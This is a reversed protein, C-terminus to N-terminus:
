LKDLLSLFLASSWIDLSPQENEPVFRRVDEIAEKWDISNIKAALEKKVWDTNVTIEQGSWPGQQNIASTLFGYNIAVQNRIYWIFDYWDRGKTYTRCLLAHMKGAFLSPLDLTVLEAAYPFDLYNLEAVGGVPPNTDVEFKIKIKAMKGTKSVHKLTLAKVLSSDKLFAKKVASQTKDKETVELEYGFDALESVLNPLYDNLNFEPTPERLLFDLDESFRNLGHVIRLCTGGLFTAHAFFDSRSLAALVVEQTIERIANKEQTNNKCNFSDLQQQIIQVTMVIGKDM